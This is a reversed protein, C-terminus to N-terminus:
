ETWLFCLAGFSMLPIILCDILVREYAGPVQGVLWIIGAAAFVVGALFIGGLHRVRWRLWKM